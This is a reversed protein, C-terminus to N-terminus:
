KENKDSMIEKQLQEASDRLSKEQKEINTFRLDMIEKKSTLDKILDEKEASVVVNGVIKFAEKADKLEGLANEIELLQTQFGHKQMAISQMKQEFEQLESLKEQMKESIKESM